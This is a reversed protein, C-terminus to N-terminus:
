DPAFALLVNGFESGIIAYGSPVYVMGNAITAGASSISGGHAPVKNVTDFDRATAFSWLVKGDSTSLARLTGDTGGVFVAGPIATVPATNEVSAGQSPALPTFWAREGTDLRLAAAGGTSV